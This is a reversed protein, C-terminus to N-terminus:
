GLVPNRQCIWENTVDCSVNRWVKTAAVACRRDDAPPEMRNTDNLDRGDVWKWRDGEARLGIWYVCAGSGAAGSSYIFDEEEPTEIVVLHGNKVRCDDQAGEWTRRDVADRILYCRSLFHLWGTECPESQRKYRGLEGSMTYSHTSNTPPESTVPPPLSMWCGRETLNTRMQRNEEQVREKEATVNRNEAAIRENSEKLTAIFNTLDSNARTLNEIEDKLDSITGKLNKNARITDNLNKNADGSGEMEDSLKTSIVSTFHIRLSMIIILILWCVAVPSVDQVISPNNRDSVATESVTTCVEANMYVDEEELQDSVASMNVNLTYTVAMERSERKM